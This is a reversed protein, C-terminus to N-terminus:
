LSENEHRQLFQNKFGNHYIYCKVVNAVSFLATGAWVRGQFLLMQAPIECIETMNLWHGYTKLYKQNTWKNAIKFALIINFTFITGFLVKLNPPSLPLQDGIKQMMFITTYYLQEYELQVAVTKWFIREGMQTCLVAFLSIYFTMEYSRGEVTWWGLM